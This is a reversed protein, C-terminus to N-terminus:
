DGRPESLTEAITPLAIHFIAGGAADNEAWLRGGHASVISRSISLGLGLGQRKTTFFPEFLRDFQDAHIGPGTDAISLRVADATADTVIRLRRAEPGNESMAECANVILNLIVQQLQVRDGRVTLARNCCALHADVNRTVLEGHILSLVERVVENADLLCFQMEDKKLLPRLRAIIEGARKDDKVIDDLIDRIEDLDVEEQALFRRGAQANSLIAALPQNIEHALAGSLEGLMAVRTLHVLQHRQERAEREAKQAADLALHLREERQRATTEAQQREQLVAALCLLPVSVVILFLQVALANDASSESTFPGYGHVAGWIAMLSITLVAVSGGGVGFRVAAWLMLPSPAYLLDLRTDPGAKHSMFVVIGVALLGIWLTGAEAIRSRSARRLETLGSMAVTVIVPTVTLAALANSLFWMRWMQWYDSTGWRNPAVVGADLFSSLLPALFAGCLLFLSVDRLRDFRPATAFFRRMLAAGILAGSSNSLFLFLILLPPVNGQFHAVWHVPLVVLLLLWWTGVPMLLLGALLISNPPWLTSVPHSQFTLAFGIKAGIYYGLAVLLVSLVASDRPLFGSERVPRPTDSFKGAVAEDGRPANSDRM